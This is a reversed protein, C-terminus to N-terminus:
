VEREETCIKDDGPRNKGVKSCSERIKDKLEVLKKGMRMWTILEIFLAHVLPSEGQGVTM